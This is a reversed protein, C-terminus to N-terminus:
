ANKIIVKVLRVLTDITDQIAIKYEAKKDEGNCMKVRLDITDELIKALQDSIERRSKM